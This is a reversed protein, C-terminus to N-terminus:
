SGRCPFTRAPKDTSHFEDNEIESEMSEDNYGSPNIERDSDLEMIEITEDPTECRMDLDEALSLGQLSILLTSEDNEIESEMSEDNYGSPNIERDSDLEMIEITEDPTECRMDLDEALSLGQLSILLTSEDNEIESEMSEDNYGSLNIERDSDLEMIEITEDPTECRMDLDEALSLGQLSILLTSEDNEIESEMSEDNYGSLNIERDSDLEMIEITEDPTECRMDLDEALSLGQLSILLTSEDNEIESEMSEDNYGSLNIERDSDLEMIEITEDPTECRMDLDEALSLGQLSILLTSEDNEIESEMSEDNYGSLNIERDSDLEMIEITEDPTECRMDLDEALSLGQLSILLTSEDNEIESEMSEDNYGSPNIERDSDLEMIEITEDPIECRMDLDEALSLGQLSILLTSDNEIENEM